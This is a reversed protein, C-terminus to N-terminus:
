YDCLAPDSLLFKAYEEPTVNAVHPFEPHDQFYKMLEEYPLSDLQYYTPTIEKHEPMPTVSNVVNM